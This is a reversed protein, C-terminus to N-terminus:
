PLSIEAIVQSHPRHLGGISPNNDKYGSQLAILSTLFPSRKNQEELVGSSMGMKVAKAENEKLRSLVGQLM